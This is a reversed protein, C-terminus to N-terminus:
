LNIEEVAMAAEAVVVMAEMAAVEAVMVAEEEAEMAAVAEMVEEMVVKDGYELGVGDGIITMIGIVIIINTM